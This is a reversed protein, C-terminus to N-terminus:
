SDTFVEKMRMNESGSPMIPAIKQKSSVCLVIFRYERM